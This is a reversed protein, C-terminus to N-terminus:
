LRFGGSLVIGNFLNEKLNKHVKSLDEYFQIRIEKNMIKEFSQLNLDREKAGIIAIDIDSNKTDEGKSFSGFLVITKAPFKDELFGLLGSEYILKLNDIKKLKFVFDNELNIEISLRKSLPDKSVLILDKEKLRPLAKSIAPPTVNLDKALRLANVPSGCKVFLYRLINEQLSTFRPEYINVM